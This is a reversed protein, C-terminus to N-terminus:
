KFKLNYKKVIDTIKEKWLINQIIDFLLEKKEWNYTLKSFYYDVDVINIHYEKRELRDQFDWIYIEWIWRLYKNIKEQELAKETKQTAEDVDFRIWYKIIEKMIPM